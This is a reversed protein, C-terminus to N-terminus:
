SFKIVFKDIELFDGYSGLISDWANELQDQSLSNAMDNNFLSYADSFSEKSLLDVFDLAIDLQTKEEPKEEEVCGTFSCIFLIAVCIIIKFKLKKM